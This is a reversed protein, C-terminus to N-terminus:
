EALYRKPLLIVNRVAQSNLVGFNYADSLVSVDDVKIALVDVETGKHNGYFGEGSTSLVIDPFGCVGCQPLEIM